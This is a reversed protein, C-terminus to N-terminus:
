EFRGEKTILRYPEKFFKNTNHNFQESFVVPIGHGSGPQIWLYAHPIHESILVSHRVKIIDHDGAVVMVPCNVSQLASLTIQPQEMLLRLQKFTNAQDPNRDQLQKLENYVPKVIDLVDVNVATTDPWLNAGSIVLKKVKNPHRIALLLGIIGGDSWGVVQVSDLQMATLLADYDDAMMEYTLSDVRDISKGHARSDATIVKYQKSFYPYQKDFSAISGGNGHIFLIPSGNGYSESYMRFGRFEFYHGIASNNGYDGQANATVVLCLLLWVLIKSRLM